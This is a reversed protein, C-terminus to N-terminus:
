VSRLIISLDFEATGDGGLEFPRQTAVYSGSAGEYKGTGGIIAHTSPGGALDNTTGIGVITGDRLNFQHMEMAGASAETTGFPSGFQFSSAYFEGIKAHDTEDILEGFVSSREGPQPLIGRRRDPYTARWNDGHIKMSVTAKSLEGSQMARGTLGVGVLGGIFLATRGLLARRPMSRIDRM